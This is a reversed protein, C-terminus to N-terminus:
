HNALQSLKMDDNSFQFVKLGFQEIIAFLHEFFTTQVKEYDAWTVIKTYACVELPLGTATPPLQRVFLIADEVFMGDKEVIRETITKSTEEGKIYERITHKKTYYFVSNEDLTVVDKFDSRFNKVDNILWYDGKQKFMKIKKEAKKDDKKIGKKEFMSEEQSVKKDIIAQFFDHEENSIHYEQWSIDGSTRTIPKIKKFVQFNARIYKEIYVRFLELNTLEGNSYNVDDYKVESREKVYKEMIPIKGISEILAQDAVRITNIDINISKKIRRSKAVEQMNSWNIFSETMLAYTPITSISNDFNRVKVTNLTIDIVNGEINRNSITIWDNMKLMNLMSLQISAVLGMISDKFVLMVVASMAALSGLIVSPSKGILISVVLIAAISGLIIKVVQIYGKPSIHKYNESRKLVVTVIDNVASLARMVVVAVSVIIYIACSAEFFRILGESEMAYRVSMLIIVSPVIHSLPVFVKHKELEDDYKNSTRSIAWHVGRIIGYKVIKYSAWALLGITIMIMCDKAYAAFSEGFGNDTFLKLWFNSYKELLDM